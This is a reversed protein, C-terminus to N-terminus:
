TSHPSCFELKPSYMPQSLAIIKVNPNLLCTTQMVQRGLASNLAARALSRRDCAPSFRVSSWFCNVYFKRSLHPSQYPISPHRHFLAAMKELIPVIPFTHCPLADDETYITILKGLPQCSAHSPTIRPSPTMSKGTALSLLPFPDLSQECRAYSVTSNERVTHVYCCDDDWELFILNVRSVCFFRPRSM